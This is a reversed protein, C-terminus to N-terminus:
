KMNFVSVHFIYFLNKCTKLWFIQIRPFNEKRYPYYSFFKEYVLDSINRESTMFIYELGSVRHMDPTIHGRMTIGKM